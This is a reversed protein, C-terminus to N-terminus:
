KIYCIKACMIGAEEKNLVTNTKKKFNIIKMARERLSECFTKLATKVETYMM